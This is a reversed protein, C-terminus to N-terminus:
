AVSTSISSGEPTLELQSVLWDYYWKIAWPITVIPICFPVLVITRWLVQHGAGLFRLDGGADRVHSAIWDYFGAMAWAWGIITLISVSVLLNWGIFGWVSGDFRWQRGNLELHNITWRTFMWGLALMVLHSLLSPFYIWFPGDNEDRALGTGFAVAYVLVYLAIIKWVNAATGSFRFTEGNSARVEGALWGTFWSIVWPVPIVFPFSLAMLFSRGFLGLASAELSLRLPGASAPEGVAAPAAGVPAGCLHCFVAGTEVTAGCSNCTM